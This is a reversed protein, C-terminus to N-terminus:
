CPKLVDSKVLGCSTSSCAVVGEAHHIDVFLKVMIARTIDAAKGRTQSVDSALTRETDVSGTNNETDLAFPGVRAVDM